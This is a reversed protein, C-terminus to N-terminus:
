YRVETGKVGRHMAGTRHSWPKLERELESTARNVRERPAAMSYLPAEIKHFRRMDSNNFPPGVSTRGGTRM